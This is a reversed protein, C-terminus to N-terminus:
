RPREASAPGGLARRVRDTRFFRARQDALPVTELWGEGSHLVLSEEAAPSSADFFGDASVTLWGGDGLSVITAALSGDKANWIRVSRDDGASALHQGDSSVSVSRVRGTHGALAQLPRGTDLDWRLIRHDGIGSGYAFLTHGDPSFVRTATWGGDNLTHLLRGGNLELVRVSEGDSWALLRGDPSLSGQLATDRALKDPLGAPALRKPLGLGQPGVPRAELAIRRPEDGDAWLLLSTGASDLMVALTGQTDKPLEVKQLLYRVAPDWVQIAKDELVFLSRGDRSYRVDRGSVPGLAVLESGTARSYLRLRGGNIAAISRGDPSFDALRGPTWASDAALPARAPAPVTASEAKDQLAQVKGTAADILAVAGDARAAVLAAGDRSYAVSLLKAGRGALKAFQQGQPLRWLRVAEDDSGTALLKGDASFALAKIPDRSAAPAFPKDPQLRIPNVVGPTWSLVQGNDQAWTVSRGDASFRARTVGPAAAAVVARGDEANHLSLRTGDSQLWQALDPSVAQLQERGQLRVNRVIRGDAVVLVRLAQASRVALRQGDASFQLGLVTGADTGTFTQLAKGSSADFVTVQQGAGVAFRRGDASFGIGSPVGATAVQTAQEGSALDWLRVTQDAAATLLRQGDPSFALKLVPREQGPLAGLELGRAVDWLQVQNSAAVALLRGDPSFAIDQVADPAGGQLRVVPTFGPDAPPAAEAQPAPATAPATAPAAPAAKGARTAPAPPRPQAPEAGGAPAIAWLLGLGFVALATSVKSQM